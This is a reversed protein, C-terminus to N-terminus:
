EAGETERQAGTQTGQPLTPAGGHESRATAAERARRIVHPVQYAKASHHPCYPLGPVKPRACFHFDAARPDNIPWRCDGAELDQLTKREAVPIVLEEGSEVYPEAPKAVYGDPGSGFAFTRSKTKTAVARAAVSPAVSKPGRPASARPRSSTSRTQLKMRHIKGLISSRTLGSGEFAPSEAIQKASLGDDNWAKKLFAIRHETWGNTM